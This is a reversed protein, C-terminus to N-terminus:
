LTNRAPLEECISCTSGAAKQIGPRASAPWPFPFAVPLLLSGCGMGPPPDGKPIKIWWKPARGVAAGNALRLSGDCIVSKLPKTPNFRMRPAPSTRAEGIWQRKLRVHPEHFPLEDCFVAFQM